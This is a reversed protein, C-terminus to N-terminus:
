ARRPPQSMLRCNSPARCHRTYSSTSQSRSTSASCCQGHERSCRLPHSLRAFSHPARGRTTDINRSPLAIVSSASTRAAQRQAGTAASPSLARDSRCLAPIQNRRPTRSTREMIYSLHRFKRGIRRARRRALGQSAM